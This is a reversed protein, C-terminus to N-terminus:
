FRWRYGFDSEQSTLAFSQMRQNTVCIWESFNESKVGQLDVINNAESLLHESGVFIERRFQEDGFDKGYVKEGVGTETVKLDIAM